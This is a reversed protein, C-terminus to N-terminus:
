GNTASGGGGRPRHLHIIPQDAATPAPDGDPESEEGEPEESPEETAERLDAMESLMAHIREVDKGISARGSRFRREYDTGELESAADKMLKELLSIVEVVTESVPKAARQIDLSGPKVRFADLVEEMISVAEDAVEPADNLEGERFFVEYITDLRDDEEEANLAEHLNKDLQRALDRLDEMRSTLGDLRQIALGWDGYPRQLGAYPDQFYPQVYKRALLVFLAIPAAIGLSAVGILMGLVWFTLIFAFALYPLMWFFLSGYIVSLAIFRLTRMWEKGERMYKAALTLGVSFILIFPAIM